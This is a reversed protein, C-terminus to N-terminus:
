FNQPDVDLSWRVQRSQPLKGLPDVARALARHLASRSKGELWLYARHYGARRELLAPIPGSCEL